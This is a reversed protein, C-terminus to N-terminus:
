RIRYTGSAAADDGVPASAASGVGVGPVLLRGGYRTSAKIASLQAGPKFLGRLPVDWVVSAGSARVSVRTKASDRVPATADACGGANMEGDSVLVPVGGGSQATLVMRECGPLAFSVSYVTPHGQQPGAALGLSVRLVRTKRDVAFSGSVIDGDAVAWDGAPDSLVSGGAGASAPGAALVCAALAAAAAVRTM